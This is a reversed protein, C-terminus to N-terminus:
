ATLREYIAQVRQVGGLARHIGEPALGYFECLGDLNLRDPSDVAGHFKAFALSLTDVLPRGVLQTPFGLAKLRWDLFPWDFRAINHGVIAPGGEALWDWIEQAVMAWPVADRKWEAEDYGVVKLAEPTANSPRVLPLKHVLPASRDSRAIAIELIDSHVPDLGSTEIDLFAVPRERYNVKKPEFFEVGTGVVTYRKRGDVARSEIENLNWDSM